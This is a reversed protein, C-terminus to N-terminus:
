RVARMVRVRGVGVHAELVLVRRGAQDVSRDVNRGDASEGLIEVQGLQADGRVQLAVDRPVV